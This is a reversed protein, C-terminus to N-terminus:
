PRCFAFEGPELEQFGCGLGKCCGLIDWLEPPSATIGGSSAQGTRSTTAWAGDSVLVAPSLGLAPRKM